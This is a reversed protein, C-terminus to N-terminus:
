QGSDRRRIRVMSSLSLVLSVVGLGSIAGRLYGSGWLPVWASFLNEEWWELCPYVLLILGALFGCAVVVLTWLTRARRRWRSLMGEPASTLVPELSAPNPPASM